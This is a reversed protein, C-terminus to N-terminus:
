LSEPRSSQCKSMKVANSPLNQSFNGLNPLKLWFEKRLVFVDGGTNKGWSLFIGGLYEKMVDFVGGGQIWTQLNQSFNGLNPLKLWFAICSCYVIFTIIIKSRYHSLAIFLSLSRQNYVLSFLSLSRQNIIRYLSLTNKMIENNM